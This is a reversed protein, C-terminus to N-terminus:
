AEELAVARGAALRLVRDCALLSETRASVQVLTAGLRRIVGRIHAELPLEVSDLAGDIVLLSPVRLLARALFLRSRQGGSLEAGGGSLVLDLGGRPMLEDWLRVDELAERLADDSLAAGLLLNDRLTVDLIAGAAAVLAASGPTLELPSRGDILLAGGTPQKIGTLLHVLVTKGSASPGSVGLHCGPELRFTVGDLGPPQGLAGLWSVDTAVVRSGGSPAVRSMPATPLPRARDLDALEHAAEKLPALRHQRAFNGLPGELSLALLGLAAVDGIALAGGLVALVGFGLAGALRGAALFMRWSALAAYGAGAEQLPTAAAAHQGALLGFLEGEGGGIRHADMQAIVDTAPAVSPPAGDGLRAVAGGRRSGILAVSLVDILATSAIVAGARPDIALAAGSLVLPSALGFAAEALGGQQALALPAELKAIIQDVHRDIFFAGPLRALPRFARGLADDAIASALRASGRGRLLALGGAVLAAAAALALTRLSPTTASLQDLAAGAYRISGALALAAVLATGALAAIMPFRGRIAGGLYRWWRFGCGRPQLASSPVFTLAIGTFELDFEELPMRRPGADPDNLLVHDATMGEVVVFHIFRCHAILPFGLEPLTDPERRFSHAELGYRRALAVMTSASTGLYTSGAAQRLEELPVHVGHYGLIIAIAALGCEAAEGQRVEPSVPHSRRLALWRPRGSRRARHGSAAM